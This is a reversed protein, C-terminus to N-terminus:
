GVMINEDEDLLENKSPDFLNLKLWHVKPSPSGEAFCELTVDDGRMIKVTDKVENKQAVKLKDNHFNSGTKPLAVSYEVFKPPALVSVKFVIEKEGMENVGRCTYNGSNWKFTESISLFRNENLFNITENDHLQVNEKFWIIKPSPEGTILCSLLLPLRELVEIDRLQTMQKENVAPKEYIKVEVAQEDRGLANYGYCNYTGSKKLDRDRFVIELKMSKDDLKTLQSYFKENSRKVEFPDLYSISNGFGNFYVPYEVSTFLKALNLKSSTSLIHGNKIWSIVPMPNGRVTCSLRLSNDNRNAKPAERAEVVTASEMVSVHYEITEKGWSNKAICKFTGHNAPTLNKLELYAEAEDEIM